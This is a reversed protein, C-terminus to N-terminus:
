RPGTRPVQALDGPTDVDYLAEGGTDLWTVSVAELLASMSRRGTAFLEEARAVAAPSFRACLPQPRGDGDRPVVCHEPSPVPYGALLRLFVATLRPLDTAVVLVPRGSVGRAALTGAGAVLAALPGSGPPDEMTRPLSTFGPGVEIVPAAVQLLLAATRDALRDGDVVLEAKNRGMRRSAGGTLLLAAPRPAVM